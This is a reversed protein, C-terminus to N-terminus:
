FGKYPNLYQFLNPGRGNHETERIEFCTTVDDGFMQFQSEYCSRGFFSFSRKKKKQCCLKKNDNQVPGMKGFCLFANHPLTLFLFVRNKKKKALTDELVQFSKRLKVSELFYQFENLKDLNEISWLTIKKM